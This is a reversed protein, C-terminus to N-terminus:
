RCSRQAPRSYTGIFAYGRRLFGNRRLSGCLRRHHQLIQEYSKGLQTAMYGAGFQSMGVGHGLGGGTAIVKTENDDTIFDFFVNASPLM